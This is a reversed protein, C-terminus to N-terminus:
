LGNQRKESSRVAELVARAWRCRAAVGPDVQAQQSQRREITAASRIAVSQLAIRASLHDTNNTM